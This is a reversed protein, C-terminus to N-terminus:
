IKTYKVKVLRESGALVDAIYSSSLLMYELGVTRDLPTDPQGGDLCLKSLSKLEETTIHERLVRSIKSYVIYPKPGIEKLTKYLNLSIKASISNDGGLDNYINGLEHNYDLESKTGFYLAQSLTLTSVYGEGNEDLGRALYAELFRLDVTDCSKVYIEVIEM